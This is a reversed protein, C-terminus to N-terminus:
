FFGAFFLGFGKLKPSIANIVSRLCSAQLSVFADAKPNGVCNRLCAARTGHKSLILIMVDAIRRRAAFTNIPSNNKTYRKLAALLM